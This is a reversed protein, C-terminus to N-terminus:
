KVTTIDIKEPSQATHPHVDSAYVHLNRYIERGLRNKPLMGRIAKEVVREPNTGELIRQPNTVRQGGPYTTHSLYRKDTIKNGTLKVKDANIIVVNDGCDAHPTFQPKHKGRLLFAVNASLRGLIQDKADVLIWKKEVTQKSASKTKYSITDVKRFLKAQL